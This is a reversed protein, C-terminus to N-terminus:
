ALPTNRFKLTLARGDFAALRARSEADLVLVSNIARELLLGLAALVANPARTDSEVSPDPM